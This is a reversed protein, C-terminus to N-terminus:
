ALGQVCQAFLSWIPAAEGDHKRVEDRLTSDCLEMLIFLYDHLVTTERVTISSHDEGPPLSSMYCQSCLCLPQLVADLLGWQEFSVEWDKYTSRCLNCVPDEYAAASASASPESTSLSEDFRFLRSCVDTLKASGDGKEVWASYYRVVNDSNLRSLLEVERLVKNRKESDVTSSLKVSKLAYERSDVRNRVRHTTGFAGSGLVALIEFDTRHRARDISDRRVWSMGGTSARTLLSHDLGVERRPTSPSPPAAMRKQGRQSINSAHPALGPQDACLSPHTQSWSGPPPLLAHPESQTPHEQHLTGKKSHLKLMKMTKRFIIFQTVRQLTRKKIGCPAHAEGVTVRPVPVTGDDAGATCRGEDAATRRGVPAGAGISSM